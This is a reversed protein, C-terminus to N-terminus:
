IAIKSKLPQSNLLVALKRLAGMRRRNLTSRSIGLKRAAHEGPIRVMWSWLIKVEDGELRPLWDLLVEDMRDIAAPSPVMRTPASDSFGRLDKFSRVIDPWSSGIRRGPHHAPLRWLTEAAERLRDAIGLSTWIDKM